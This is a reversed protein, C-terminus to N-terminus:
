IKSNRGSNILLNKIKFSNRTIIDDKIKNKIALINWRLQKQKHDLNAYKLIYQILDKELFTPFM